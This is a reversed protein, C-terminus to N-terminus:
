RASSATATYLPLALRLLLRELQLDPNGNRQLADRCAHVAQLTDVVVSPPLRDADRALQEAHDVNVVADESGRSQVVLLDRLYTALHDLLLDLARRQAGRELREHRRQLQRKLGPPWGQGRADVGLDEEYRAIEEAHREKLPEVRGKAWRTLEKAMPVVQGPGGAALRDLLALHSDRAELMGEEALAAVREPSGLSVRAVAEVRDPPISLERARERQPELGWPVVTLRRCRSIVTDLLASEDEVELLWVVSPPPEELMKLFANQAADNMRDASAIRMVRRRGDTISRSAPRIWGERVDDVVYAAGTPEREELLEHTGRGIRACRDCTGCPADPADLHDCNLAMTLARALEHQGVSPPGVVLWAHSVEDAALARRLAQVAAPQERAGGEWVRV